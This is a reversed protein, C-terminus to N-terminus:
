VNNTEELNDICGIVAVCLVRYVITFKGDRYGGVTPTKDKQLPPM